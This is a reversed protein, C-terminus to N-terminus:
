LHQTQIARVPCISYLTGVIEDTKTIEAVGKVIDLVESNIAWETKQLSNINKFIRDFSGLGTIRTRKAKYHHQTIIFGIDMLIGLFVSGLQLNETKTGDDGYISMGVNHSLVNYMLGSDSESYKLCESLVFCLIISALDTMELETEECIRKLLKTTKYSRKESKLSDMMRTHYTRLISLNYENITNNLTKPKLRNLDFISNELEVQTSFM